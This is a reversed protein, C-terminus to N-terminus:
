KESMIYRILNGMRELLYLLSIIDLKIKFIHRETILAKVPLFTNSQIQHKKGKGQSIQALEDIHGEARLKVAYEDDTMPRKRDTGTDKIYNRFAAKGATDSTITLPTGKATYVVVDKGQRIENNIYDTVQKGWKRPDNGHIVERDASVHGYIFAVDISGSEILDANIFMKRAAKDAFGGLRCDEDGKFFLTKTGFLLEAKEIQRKQNDHLDIEEALRAEGMIGKSKWYRKEREFSERDTTEVKRGLVGRNESNRAANPENSQFTNKEQVGYLETAGQGGDQM